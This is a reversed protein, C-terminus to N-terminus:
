EVGFIWELPIHLRSEWSREDHAHGAYFRSLYHAADWGRAEFLSDVQQQYPPYLADLTQDGCDMYIKVMGAEPLQADLYDRLAKSWAPAEEDIKDLAMPTHTSLCAAAGFITPYEAIAYLSILGGASSGGIATHAAEPRTPYHSDIFPKLEEVLFRLYADSVFKEKDCQQLLPDNEPVFDLVRRPVYDYLRTADDNNIGVVLFPAVRGQDILAQAVSDINWSQGNWSTTKDFLMQADHMYLVGYRQEPSYDEPLWVLVDRAAFHESAFAPYYDIRGRDVQQPSQPTQPASSCAALLLLALTLLQKM